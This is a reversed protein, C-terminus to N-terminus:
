SVISNNVLIWNEEVELWKSSQFEGGVLLSTHRTQSLSILYFRNILSGTSFEGAKEKGAAM